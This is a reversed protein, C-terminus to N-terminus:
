PGGETRAGGLRAHMALLLDRQAARRDAARRLWVSAKLQLGDGLGTIWVRPARQPSAYESDNLDRELADCLAQIEDRDLGSPIPLVLELRRRDAASLNEVRLEGVSVNSIVVMTHQRTRISTAFVSIDIVEGVTDEGGRYSVIRVRDGIHFPPDVFMTVSAIANRIPDRAAFTFAAALGTLVLYLQRTAGLRVAVVTAFTLFLALRGVHRAGLLGARIGPSHRLRASTRGNTWAVDLMRWALWFAGAIGLVELMLAILPRDTPAFSHALVGAGAAALMSLPAALQELGHLGLITRGHRRAVWRTVLWTVLAVALVSALAILREWWLSTRLVDPLQQRV